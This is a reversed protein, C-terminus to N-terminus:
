PLVIDCQRGTEADVYIRVNREGDTCSFEYCALDREGPSKCIVRRAATVKVQDPLALRATEEDMNWRVDAPDSCYDECSFSYISGDDLAVAIRVTNDLCLAEDELKSFEMAYVTGSSSQSSLALDEYGRAALYEEAVTRAEDESLLAEGVLRSQGMTEMGGRSVCVFLDGTRYCRRGDIGEYTYLLDLAEPEVQAYAAAIEKMESETLYGASDAERFGYKGDYCLQELPTFETECSLMRASLKEGEEEGVNRLRKERSDMTVDGNNVDGQLQRLSDTFGAAAASLNTLDELQQEDFGDGATGCLTYAYDGAVNLFASLQELEQTAFPLSAMASEAASASAYAEACVRACMGGDTAYVSKALAQSLQEVSAVTEEFSRGATYRATMRYGELGRQGACTWAGLAVAAAIAYSRILIKYKRRHDRRM